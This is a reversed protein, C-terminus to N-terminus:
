ELAALFSARLLHILMALELAGLVAINTALIDTNKDLVAEVFKYKYILKIKKATLLTKTTIYSRLLLKKASFELDPNSLSLFSIM